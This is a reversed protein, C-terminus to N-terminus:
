LECDGEQANSKLFTKRNGLQRSMVTSAVNCGTALEDMGISEYYKSEPDLWDRQRIGTAAIRRHSDRPDITKTRVTTPYGGSWFRVPPTGSARSMM